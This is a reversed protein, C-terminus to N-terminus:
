PVLRREFRRRIVYGRLISCLYMLGTILAASTAPPLRLLAVVFSVAFGIPLGVTAQTAAEILSTRPRENM